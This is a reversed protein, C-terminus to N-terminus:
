ATSRTRVRRWQRDSSIGAAHLAQQTSAGDALVRRAVTARVSEVYARPTSGVHSSFLRTLHRPTVHAVQAMDQLSWGKSPTDCVANQVRHVAPHLHNRGKLLPSLQPDDPGRRSYVVMVQAVAAALADGCDQAIRHLALDIGATVGASTSVAGDVVFVRNALVMATPALQQLHSLMEHHTTCRRQHLFGADAALLAGACVTMLTVPTLADAALGRAVVKSLWRRTDAWHRPLPKQLASEAGSPQGLLVVCTPQTIRAPLPELAALTAGVSTSSDTKPGIFRLRYAAPQGRLLRQQNALRFAEAPGALDLLLTGPLVVFWVETMSLKARLKASLKATLTGAAFSAAGHV